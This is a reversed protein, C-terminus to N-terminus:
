TRVRWRVSSTERLLCRVEICCQCDKHILIEWHLKQMDDVKASKIWRKCILSNLIASVYQSKMTAVIYCCPIGYYEFKGCGCLYNSQSLDLIIVYEHRRTALKTMKLMVIDDVKSREVVNLRGVEEIQVIVERFKKKTFVKAFEAEIQILLTKLVLGLHMSKFDSSLENHKYEKVVREFHHLFDNLSNKEQVFMKIFSNVGECISTTMIGAFLKDRMFASALMSNMDYMNKM